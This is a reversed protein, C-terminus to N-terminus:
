RGARVDALLYRLDLAARKVEAHLRPSVDDRQLQARLKRAAKAFRAAEIIAAELTHQHIERTQPEVEHSQKNLGIFPGYDVCVVSYTVEGGPSDAHYVIRYARGTDKGYAKMLLGICEFSHKDGINITLMDSLKINDLRLANALAMLDKDCLTLVASM